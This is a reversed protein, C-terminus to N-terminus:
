WQHFESALIQQATRAFCSNAARGAVVPSSGCAACLHRPESVSTLEGGNLAWQTAVGLKWLTVWRLRCRRFVWSKALLMVDCVAPSGRSCTKFVPPAV